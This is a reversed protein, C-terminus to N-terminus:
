PVIVRSSWADSSAVFVVVAFPFPPLEIVPYTPRRTHGRFRQEFPADQLAVFGWLGIFRVRRPMNVYPGLVVVCGAELLFTLYGTLGALVNDKESEVGIECFCIHPTDHTRGKM